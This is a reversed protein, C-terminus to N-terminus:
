LHEGILRTELWSIRAGVDKDRCVFLMAGPVCLHAILRQSRKVRYFGWLVLSVECFVKQRGNGWVTCYHLKALLFFLFWDTLAQSVRLALVLRLVCILQMGIKIVFWGSLRRAILADHLIRFCEFVDMFLESHRMMSSKTRYVALRLILARPEVGAYELVIVIAAALLPTQRLFVRFSDLARGWFRVSGLLCDFFLAYRAPLKQDVLVVVLKGATTLLGISLRVRSIRPM